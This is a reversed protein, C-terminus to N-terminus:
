FRYSVTAVVQRPAIPNISYNEHVYYNYADTLNSVKALLSLKKFSYGASLDISTFGEVPIRRDYNQTQGIANNWGGYRDGTYFAAAGLKLGKLVSQFTYFVSGNATHAPTAVLREGEKYNGKADPTKTYRMFNYSYGALLDLGAIPHGALDLEVGDSTTEGVLAKIATNNNPTVGDKLFPATQALNNNKIRYATLNASLKGGFFENKVGAEYQDILSPDLAKGDVDTGSNVSFSNAYSVFFSTTESPKYVLGLRPSLAADYKTAGTKHAGTALVTTDPRDSYVYSWRVGALLNWKSSLKVLDQVYVGGKDVPLHIRHTRETAPMDTRAVHKALDLINISDYINAGMGAAQANKYTYNTTAYRDADMGALLTHQLRGTTFKGTLNLQGTYYDEATNTRGLPRKWLGNAAAQIRETSFYDRSYNQYSLSGNLQWAENFAHKVSATTTAQETRAYQWSTGLFTSRPLDAIRTNDLSGIGFDPTFSHKLYDGELVLETRAGLKFLLSPNVYYRESSVVDRYSAASEFTGNLRFAIASSLPGYVDFTPKYLDYSGTRFSVEGGWHFRPQKTVMNVVGGPAVQGYLIAASGKLVEVRDLGSVEPMAGSNIRAGNKFLNSSSFSYGRASFNEQTGARTNALYVGNVNRVVDSLRQAQQDRIVPQGLVALSQPLDMPAIPAKGITVVRQNITKASHVVVGALQRTDEALQFSVLAAKNKVVEVEKQQPQLGVMSVEVLYKGEKINTVRFFGEDDTAVVLGTGRVSVTVGAAPQWDLTTIKGEIITHPIDPNEHLTSLVATNMLTPQAPLALGTAILLALSFIRKVNRFNKAFLCRRVSVLM